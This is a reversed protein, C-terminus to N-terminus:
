LLQCSAFGLFHTSHLSKVKCVSAPSAEKEKRKGIAVGASAKKSGGWSEGAVLSSLGHAQSNIGKLATFENCSKQNTLVNAVM